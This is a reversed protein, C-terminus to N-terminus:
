YLAMDFARRHTRTIPHQDGLLSFVAICAKRSGDDDYYRNTRLVDLFSAIAQDFEQRSLARVAELYREKEPAEAFADPDGARKLLGAITKISEEIQLFGAGAFPAGSALQEAEDPDEFLVIRALLLRARANDPEESLVQRFLTEARDWDGSELASEAAALRKKAESPLAKALWQRVAQEPLAGTFEDVVEGDVFMKVAPIGRIDYRMSVEPNQDTNVKALRWKGGAETALRDLIPGLFRCPGCWPAWFDVVVPTRRSADLVDVEFDTVEAEM